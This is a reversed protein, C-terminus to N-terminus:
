KASRIDVRLQYKLDIHQSLDSLSTNQVDTICAQSDGGLCVPFLKEMYVGIKGQTKLMDLKFKEIWLGEWVCDALEAIESKKSCQTVTTM